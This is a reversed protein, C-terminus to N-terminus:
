LLQGVKDPIYEPKIFMGLVDGIMEVMRSQLTFIFPKEAQFSKVYGQFMGLLGRFKNLIVVFKL